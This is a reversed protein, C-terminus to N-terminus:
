SHADQDGATSTKDARVQAVIQQRLAVLHDRDLTKQPIGDAELKRFRAEIAPVDWEREELEQVKAQLVEKTSM